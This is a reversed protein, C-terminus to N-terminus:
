REHLNDIEQQASADEGRAEALATVASELEELLARDDSPSKVQQPFYVITRM